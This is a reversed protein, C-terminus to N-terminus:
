KTAPLSDAPATTSTTPAVLPGIDPGDNSVMYGFIMVGLALAGALIAMVIFGDTKTKKRMQEISPMPPPTAPRRTMPRLHRGDAPGASPASQPARRSRQNPAAANAASPAPRRSSPTPAADRTAHQPAVTQGREAGRETSHYDTHPTPRATSPQQTAVPRTYSPETAPAARHSPPQVNPGHTGAPAPPVPTPTPASQARTEVGTTYQNDTYTRPTQPTHAPAPTPATAVPQAAAPTPPTVPAGSAAANLCYIGNNDVQLYGLGEIAYSGQAAICTKVQTAFAEIMSQAEANGVELQQAILGVLVGDDKRLFPVFTIQHSEEKRIFAGFQPIVLRKNHQLYDVIIQNIM